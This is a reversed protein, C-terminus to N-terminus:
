GSSEPHHTWLFPHCPQLRCAMALHACCYVFPMRGHPVREGADVEALQGQLREGGVLHKHNNVPTSLAHHISVHCGPPMNEM